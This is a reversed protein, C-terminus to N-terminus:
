NIPPSNKLPFFTTVMSILPKLSLDVKVAANLLVMYTRFLQQLLPPPSPSYLPSLKRERYWSASM